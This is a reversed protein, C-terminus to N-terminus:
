VVYTRRRIVPPTDSMYPVLKQLRMSCGILDSGAVFGIQPYFYLLHCWCCTDLFLGIMGCKKFFIHGGSKGQEEQKNNCFRDLLCKSHIQLLNRSRIPQRIRQQRFLQVNRLKKVCAVAGFPTQRDSILVESDKFYDPYWRLRAYGLRLKRGSSAYALVRHSHQKGTMSNIVWRQSTLLKNKIYIKQETTFLSYHLAPLFIRTVPPRERQSVHQIGM